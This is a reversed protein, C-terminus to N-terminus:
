ARNSATPASKLFSYAIRETIKLGVLLGCLTDFGSTHGFATIRKFAEACDTPDSVRALSILPETFRKRIAFRLMQASIDNTKHLTSQVAYLFTAFGPLHDAEGVWLAWLLGVLFDDGSPTLGEGLGIFQNLQRSFIEFRVARDLDPQSMTELLGERFASINEHDCCADRRLGTLLGHKDLQEPLWQTLRQQVVDSIACGSLSLEVSEAGNLDIAFAKSLLWNEKLCVAEGQMFPLLGDASLQLIGATQKLFADPSVVIGEPCLPKGSFMLTVFCDDEMLFNVAHRFVSHVRGNLDSAMRTQRSVAHRLAQIQNLM